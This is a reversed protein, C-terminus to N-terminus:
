LVLEIKVALLSSEDYVNHEKPLSINNIKAGSEQEFKSLLLFLEKQLDEKKAKVEDITM